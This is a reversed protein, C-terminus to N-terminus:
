YSKVRFFPVIRRLAYHSPIAVPILDEDNQPNDETIKQLLLKNALNLKAWTRNFYNFVVWFILFFLFIGGGIVGLLWDLKKYFRVAVQMSNTVTFASQVGSTAAGQVNQAKTGQYNGSWSMVSVNKYNRWPLISDDMLTVRMGATINFNAGISDSAVNIQTSYARHMHFRLSGDPLIDKSTFYFEVYYNTLIDTYMQQAATQVFVSTPFPNTVLPAMISFYMYSYSFYAYGADYQVYDPIM